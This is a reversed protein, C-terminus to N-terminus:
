NVNNKADKAQWAVGFLGAVPLMENATLPVHQILHFGLYLLVVLVGIFTTRWNKM